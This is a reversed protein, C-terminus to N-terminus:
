GSRAQHEAVFEECTVEEPQWVAEYPNDNCVVSLFRDRQGKQRALHKDRLVTFGPHSVIPAFHAENFRWRHGMDISKSILALGEEQDGELFTVVGNDFYTNFINHRIYRGSHISRDVYERMQTILSETSDFEGAQQRAALLAVASQIDFWYDSIHSGARIWYEELYPLARKYDGVKALSYGLRIKASASNPKLKLKEERLALAEATYGMFFLAEAGLFQRLALAERNLGLYAMVRSFQERTWFNDNDLEPSDFRPGGALVQDLISLAWGDFDGTQLLAQKSISEHIGPSLTSLKELVENAEEIRNEFILERYYNALAPISLPNTKVARELAMLIKDFHDLNTYLGALWTHADSYSPKIEIARELYSLAQEGLLKWEFYDGDDFDLEEWQLTALRGAAANSEALSSDLELARAVHPRAKTVREAVPAQDYILTYAIALQAHALAYDPDLKVAKEFEFEAATMSEQTRQSMLFLGRLYAEHAAPNATQDARPAQQVDLGLNTKLESVISASIEDQIAFINSLERDYTQSWLHADSKAEILQATIRVQDGAKRVSGELILAVSLQAAISPIDLDKGKYTFSSSRSIVRLDPIKALLNLLEESIGDSFYENGADDSMNVFPLVAISHEGYSDVLAETRGQEVAAEERQADRAPDLVFKDVALYTLSLALVVIIARDLKKGTHAAVSQARDIDKEKRLGEPTLEYVWSFILASPFGILLLIIAIRIPANSYGFVPLITEVVQILFWSVALYAIAVRIVNRRKLEAFLTM